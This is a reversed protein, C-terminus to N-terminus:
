HGSWTSRLRWRLLTALSRSCALGSVALHHFTPRFRIPHVDDPFTPASDAGWLRHFEMGPLLAVTVPEVQTDSAVTAKGDPRHGTVVRRIKM